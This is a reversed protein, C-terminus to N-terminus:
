NQLAIKEYELLEKNKILKEYLFQFMPNDNIKIRSIKDLKEKFDVLVKNLM